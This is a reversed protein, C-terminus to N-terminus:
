EDDSEAETSNGLAQIEIRSESLVVRVKAEGAYMDLLENSNIDIIPMEKGAKTKKSVKRSGDLALELVLTRQEVNKAVNYRMGPMFGASAPKAGELWIRPSGRHFGIKSTDNSM